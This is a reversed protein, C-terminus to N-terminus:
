RGNRFAEATARAEEIAQEPVPPTGKRLLVIGAIGLATAVFLTAGAVVLIALWTAFVIALAATAAALLFALAFVGVVLSGAVLGIGIGLAALKQKIEALALEATLRGVGAARDAVLKMAKGLGPRETTSVRTEEGPVDEVLGSAPARGM